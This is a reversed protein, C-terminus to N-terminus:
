ECLLHNFISRTLYNYTYCHFVLVLSFCQPLQTVHLIHLLSYRTVYILFLFEVFLIDYFVVM